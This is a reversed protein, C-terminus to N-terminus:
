VPVYWVLPMLIGTRVMEMTGTEYIRNGSM